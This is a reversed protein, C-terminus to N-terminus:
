EATQGAPRLAHERIPLHVLASFLGLAISAIWILDFSGTADYVLGGLWAGFFAGIQHSFMVVGFLSAMYTPGFIQGVVGSTLPVTSLWLLGMAAAFVLITTTTPPLIFFVTFVGARGLYLVALAKKKSYRGGVWGAILTGFINFLGVLALAYAAVEGSLGNIAVFTPLHTVIVAVHFGCVFFGANLLWYGRHGAAEKLATGMSPAAADEAGHAPRGALALGAPAMVMAIVALMVLAQEYGLAGNLSQTVPAMVFQGVSGGAAAVGLAFSRREPPFARGIAGLVIPFTTAGVGAGILLGASGHLLWPSDSLGMLVLGGAYLGTGLVLTRATGYRDALLGAVPAALGWLLNQLAFAFAFTSASWGTASMMDPIFLALSQRIGLNLSLILGGALLVLMPLQWPRMQPM